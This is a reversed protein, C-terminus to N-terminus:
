LRRWVHVLINTNSNNTTAASCAIGIRFQINNALPATAGTLVQATIRGATTSFTSAAATDAIVISGQSIVANAPVDSVTIAAKGEVVIYFLDNNAVGASPLFEDVPYAESPNVNAYGNVQMGYHAPDFIVLLAPLLNVGSTNRVVRVTKFENAGGTSYARPKYPSSTYDLDEVVFERGELEQKDTSGTVGATKGIDFPLLRFQGAM